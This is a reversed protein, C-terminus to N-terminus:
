SRQPRRHDRRPQFRAVTGRKDSQTTTRDGEGRYPKLLERVMAETLGVDAALKSYNIPIGYAVEAIKRVARPREISIADNHPESTRWGLASLQQFSYAYKRSTIIELEKARRILAQISVGWHPKLTAFLDLDFPPVIERRMATEPMLFEAAFQYAESEIQAVTTRLPQHMVLHGLEHAMNLRLRDMPRGGSLVLVPRRQVLGAWLSFADRQDFAVPLALILVGAKELANTLNPIPTDPSLGLESRTIEAAVVPGDTVSQPLRLAYRERIPHLELMRRVMDFAVQAYRYIENREQSSVGAHSRFLLSGLPFDESLPRQFYAIPFGTLLAFAEVVRDPAKTRGREIQAILGQTVQLHEAVDTQTLRRLERVQRIREPFIM